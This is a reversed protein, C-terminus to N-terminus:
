RIVKKCSDFITRYQSAIIDWSYNKSNEACRNSIGKYDMLIDVIRQAIEKENFCNVSYGVEGEAYQGDFGQGRTYIIPVGQTMAEAYVLGFSEHISPMVFVDSVRLMKIIFEPSQFGYYQIFNHSIAKKYVKTHVVRGIVNLQIKFGREILIECVKILTIINKNKDIDGIYILTINQPTPIAHGNPLIRNQLYFKDIGSVVIESKNITEAKYERDVYREIVYDRYPKSFFLVRHANRIIEMSHKRFRGVNRGFGYIDSNCIMVVYPIGYEKYLKLAASGGYLLRHAYVCDIDSITIRQVIDNYIHRQEGWYLLKKFISFKKNIMLVNDPNSSVWKPIYVISDIGHHGMADFMCKFLSNDYYISCIQLITM